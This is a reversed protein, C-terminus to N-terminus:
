IVTVRTRRKKCAWLRFPLSPRGKGNKKGKARSEQRSGEM